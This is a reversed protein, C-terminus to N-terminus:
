CKYCRMRETSAASYLDYFRWTAVFDGHFRRWNVRAIQFRWLFRRLYRRHLRAKLGRGFSRLMGVCYTAVINPAVHQTRKAVTNRHTAVHQTNNAWIQFHDFKLWCWGVPRLVTALRVCCTAGLLAAVHQTPMNRDNPRPKLYFTFKAEQTLQLWFIHGFVFGITSFSGSFHRLRLTFNVAVNM